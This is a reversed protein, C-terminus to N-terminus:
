GPQATRVAGAALGDACQQVFRKLFSAVLPLKPSFSESWTILTGSGSATLTVRAVHDRIPLGSLSTYGLVRGEELETIRERNKLGRTTFVRIAGLGEPADDGPRELRFSGIPSWSPWTEGAKMLEWVAAPPAASTATAEFSVV